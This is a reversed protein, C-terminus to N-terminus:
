LELGAAPTRRHFLPVMILGSVFGALHAWNAIAYGFLSFVNLFGLVMMVVSLWFFGSPLLFPAKKDWRNALACYALLAYNVGSMGGFLNQPSYLYQVMNSIVGTLVVIAIYRAAGEQREIQAGLFWLITANFVVHMLDFHLFVPTLLRWLQGEQLQQWVQYADNALLKDDIIQFGQFSLVSLVSIMQFTIVLFGAICGAVLLLSLPSTRWSFRVPVRWVKGSESVHPHQRFQEYLTRAIPIHNEDYVWLVVHSDSESLRHPFQIRQLYQSFEALGEQEFPFEIAAFM